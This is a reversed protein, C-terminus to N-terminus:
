PKETTLFQHLDDVDELRFIEDDLKDNNDPHEGEITLRLAAYAEDSFHKAVVYMEEPTFSTWAAEFWSETDRIDFFFDKEKPLIEAAIVADKVSVFEGAKM